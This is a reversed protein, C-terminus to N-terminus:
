TFIEVSDCFSDGGLSLLEKKYEMMREAGISSIPSSIHKAKHELFYSLTSWYGGRPRPFVRDGDVLQGIYGEMCCEKLDNSLVVVINKGCYEVNEYLSPFSNINPMLGMSELFVFEKRIFDVFESM